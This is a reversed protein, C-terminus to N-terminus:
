LERRFYRFLSTLHFNVIIIVVVFLLLLLLLLMIFTILYLLYFLYISLHISLYIYLYSLYISLYISYFLYISVCMFLFMPSFSLDNSSYFSLYCYLRLSFSKSMALSFWNNYLLGLNFFLLPSVCSLM